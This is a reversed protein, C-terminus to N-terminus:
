LPSNPDSLFLGMWLACLLYLIRLVSAMLISYGLYKDVQSCFRNRLVFVVIGVAAVLVNPLPIVYIYVTGTKNFSCHLPWAFCLAASLAIAVSYVSSKWDRFGIFLMAILPLAYAYIPAAGLYSLFPASATELWPIHIVNWSVGPFRRHWAGYLGVTGCLEIIFAALVM